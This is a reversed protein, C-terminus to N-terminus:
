KSRLLPELIERLEWSEINYEDVIEDFFKHFRYEIDWEDDYTLKSM